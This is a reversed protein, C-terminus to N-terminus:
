LQETNESSLGEVDEDRWVYEFFQRSGITRDAIKLLIDPRTGREAAFLQHVLEALEPDNQRIIDLTDKHRPIYQGQKLFYYNLMKPLGNCIELMAMDPDTDQVDLMNELSSVAHYRMLELMDENPNPPLELAAKAQSQLEKLRPDRDLIVVGTAMIHATVPGGNLRGREEVFYRKMRQIPNCFFQCPVSNFFKHEIQRFDGEFIVFLDIDSTLDGRGHIVSGAGVIGIPNLKEIAYEVAQRLATAFPEDLEPFHCKELM